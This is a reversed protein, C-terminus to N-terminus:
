MEWATPWTMHFKGYFNLSFWFTYTPPKWWSMLILSISIRCTYINTMQEKKNISDSAVVHLTTSITSITSASIGCTQKWVLCTEQRFGRVQNSLGRIEHTGIGSKTTSEQSSGCNNPPQYQNINFCPTRSGTNCQPKQIIIHLYTYWGVIRPSWPDRGGHNM